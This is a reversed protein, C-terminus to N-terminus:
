TLIGWQPVQHGFLTLSLASGAPASLLRSDAPNLLLALPALIYVGVGPLPITVDALTLTAAASTSAVVSEIMEPQSTQPVPSVSAGSATYASEHVYIPTRSHLQEALRARGEMAELVM